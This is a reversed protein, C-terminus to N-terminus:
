SMTKISRAREKSPQVSPELVTHIGLRPQSVPRQVLFLEGKAQLCQCAVDMRRSQMEPYTLKREAVPRQRANVESSLSRTSRQRAERDHVGAHTCDWEQM